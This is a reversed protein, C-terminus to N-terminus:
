TPQRRLIDVARGLLRSVNPDRLLAEVDGAAVRRQTDPDHMLRQMEPDTRM